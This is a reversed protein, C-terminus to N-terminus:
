TRWEIIDLEAPYESGDGVKISPLTINFKSAIAQEPDIKEGAISITVDRYSTLYLAFIEALEQLGEPSEFVRFDRRLDAIEVTVGTTHRNPAQGDASISVDTLDKDLLKIEFARIDAGAKFYVKWQVAQGLAFAKYRGRGEKGHIMREK